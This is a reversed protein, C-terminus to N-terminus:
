MSSGVILVALTLVAAATAGLVELRTFTDGDGLNIVTENWWRAAIKNTVQNKM